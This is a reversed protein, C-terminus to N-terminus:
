RLRRKPQPAEVPAITYALVGVLVSSYLLCFVLIEKLEGM